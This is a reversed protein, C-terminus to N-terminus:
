NCEPCFQERSGLHWGRAKLDNAKGFAENSCCDCFATISQEHTIVRFNTNEVTLHETAVVTTQVQM